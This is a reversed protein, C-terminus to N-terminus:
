AFSLQKDNTTNGNKDKPLEEYLADFSGVDSWNIDSPVVKVKTSKEMVAYDISESPIAEMQSHQIRLTSHQIKKNDFAVQCSEFIEPAYKKLEDLFYAKLGYWDKVRHPLRYSAKLNIKQFFHMLLATSTVGDVDYDGHIYIKENNNIASIIRQVVVEM